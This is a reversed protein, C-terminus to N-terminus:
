IGIHHIKLLAVPIFAISVQSAPPHYRLSPCLSPHNAHWPTLTEMGSLTTSEVPQKQQRPRCLHVM